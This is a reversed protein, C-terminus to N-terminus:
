DKPKVRVPQVSISCIPVHTLTDFWVEERDPHINGLYLIGGPKGKRGNKDKHKAGLPLKFALSRDRTQLWWLYILGFIFVFDSYIMWPPHFHFSFGAMMFVVLTHDPKMMWEAARVYVPRGDRLIQTHQYQYKLDLAM